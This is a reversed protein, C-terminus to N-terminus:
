RLTSVEVSDLSTSKAGFMREERTLVRPQPAAVLSDSGTFQSALIIRACSGIELVVMRDLLALRCATPKEPFPRIFVCSKSSSYALRSSM